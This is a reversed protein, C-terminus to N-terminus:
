SALAQSVCLHRVCVQLLAQRERVTDVIDIQNLKLDAIPDMMAPQGAGEADTEEQSAAHDESNQRNMEVSSIKPAYLCSLLWFALMQGQATVVQLDQLSVSLMLLCSSLLRSSMSQLRLRLPCWFASATSVDAQCVVRVVLFVFLLAKPWKSSPEPM